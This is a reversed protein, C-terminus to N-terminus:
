KFVEYLQTAGIIVFTWCLACWALGASWVAIKPWNPSKM